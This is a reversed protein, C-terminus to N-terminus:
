FTLNVTSLSPMKKKTLIEIITMRQISHKEYLSEYEGLLEFYKELFLLYIVKEM